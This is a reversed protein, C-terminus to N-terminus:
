LFRGRSLDVGVIMSMFQTSFDDAFLIKSFDEVYEFKTKTAIFEQVKIDVMCKKLPTPLALDALVYTCDSGSM